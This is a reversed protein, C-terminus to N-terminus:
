QCNGGFAGLVANLDSSDYEAGFGGLVINLDTSDIVDNGDYDGDCDDGGCEIETLRFNDVGAEVIGDNPTDDAVFRVQVNSSPEVYDSVNFSYEQWSSGTGDIEFVTVFDAGNNSVQVLFPQAQDPDSTLDSDFYWLDVVIATKSAGSLDFSPSTLTVPGNDIDNAGGSEGPEGNQTVFAFDGSAAEGPAAQSGGQTSGVPEVREWEGSLTSPDAETAFGNDDAEFDSVQEELGDAVFASEPDSTLTTGAIEVEFHFSVLDGCEQGPIVGEFIAGAGGPIETLDVEIEPGNNVAYFLKASGPEIDGGNPVIEVQLPLDQEPTIYEPVGTTLDFQASVPPVNIWVDTGNCRGLVLDKWGDGNIDFAAVDHVGELQNVPIVQEVETLTVNPPDALNHYINTDRNCGSIDVDVDTVIVDNWGDNNLDTVLTNGGFGAGPDGSFTITNFNAQNDSGNGTNLMYYDTFDDAVVLDPLQDNNLDGVSVFYPADSNVIDYDDMIGQNFPNNYTVAIHQPAALATQKVVDNAGDGNIDTIISAAGFASNRMQFQPLVTSTEDTFYGDGDNMLVINNYDHPQFGGSDYDGFYLDPAGDDNLDGVGVSCFRPAANPESAPTFDEVRDAQFEYGLWDGDGDFGLNIYVRPNKIRAPEGEQLTGATVIDLLGDGNLDALQVDRDAVSERLGDDGPTDSATGLEMTRDVLVGDENMLLQNVRQVGNTFPLKRVIVLDIDGDQDVDGWAYDKEQDDNITNEGGELNSPGSLRSQTENEFEVWQGYAAASGAVILLSAGLTPIMNKLIAM